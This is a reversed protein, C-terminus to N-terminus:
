ETGYLDWKRLPVYVTPEDVQLPNDRAASLEQQQQHQNYEADAEEAPATDARSASGPRDEPQPGDGPELCSLCLLMEDIVEKHRRKSERAEKRKQEMLQLEEDFHLQRRTRQAIDDALAKRVGQSLFVGKADIRSRLALADRYTWDDPSKSSDQEPGHNILWQMVVKTNAHLEINLAQLEEESLHNLFIGPM